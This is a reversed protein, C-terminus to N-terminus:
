CLGANHCTIALPVSVLSQVSSDVNYTWATENGYGDLNIAGSVTASSAVTVNAGTSNIYLMKFSNAGRAAQINIGGGAQTDIFGEIHVDSPSYTNSYGKLTIGSYGAAGANEELGYIQIIRESNRSTTDGIVLLDNTTPGELRLGFFRILRTLGYTATNHIQLGMGAPEAVDLGYFSLENSGDTYVYNGGTNIEVAPLSSTGSNFCLINDFKSERVYATVQNLTYGMTLCQGHLTHIQINQVIAFDERDYFEIGNQTNTALTDGIISLNDVFPGVVSNAIQDPFGWFDESWSFVPGSYVPSVFIRTQAPSDGRVCGPSHYFTPLTSSYLGYNGPPLYLCYPKGAATMSIAYNIANTLAGTDDNGYFYNAGTVSTAATFSVTVAHSNTYGAITGCQFTGATGSGDICINKGVDASTFSASNSSFASTTSNIAGDVYDITNAYAGFRSIVNAFPTQSGVYTAIQAPTAQVTAGNQTGILGENGQLTNAAPYGSIPGAFAQVSLLCAALSALFARM